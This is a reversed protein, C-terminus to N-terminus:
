EIVEEGEFIIDGEGGADSTNSTDTATQASQTFIFNSIIQQHASLPNGSISILVGGKDLALTTLQNEKGTFQRGDIDALKVEKIEGKIDAKNSATFWDDIKALGSDELKVSIIDKNKPNILEVWAYISENKVERESLILSEPYKFSFGSDNVYTKLQPQSSTPANNIVGTAPSASKKPKQTLLVFVTGSILLSGIILIAIKKM